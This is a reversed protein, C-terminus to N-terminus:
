QRVIDGYAILERHFLDSIALIGDFSKALHLRLARGGDNCLDFSKRTAFHDIQFLQLAALEKTDAHSLIADNDIVLCHQHQNDFSAGHRYKYPM